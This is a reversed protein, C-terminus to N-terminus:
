SLAAVLQKVLDDHDKFAPVPLKAIRYVEIVENVDMAQLQEMTLERQGEDQQAAPESPPDDPFRDADAMSRPKDLPKLYGAATIPEELGFLQGGSYEPEDPLGGWVERFAEKLAEQHDKLQTKAETLDTDTKEERDISYSTKNAVQDKYITYPRDMITGFKDSQRLLDDILSYPIKYLDVYGTETNLANVIYRKSAKAERENESNHGPCTPRDDTCPYDRNKTQNFHMWVSTWDKIEELFILTTAKDKFYKIYSGQSGNAEPDYAPEQAQAVGFQM